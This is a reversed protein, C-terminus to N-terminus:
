FDFAPHVFFRAIVCGFGNGAFFADLAVAIMMADIEVHHTKILLLKIMLQGTVRECSRVFSCIAPLTMARIKHSVGFQFLSCLGVEAQLFGADAAVVVVVLTGQGILTGVTM